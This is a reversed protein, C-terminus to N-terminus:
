FINKPLKISFVAGLENNRISITGKHKEIIQKCISLGLGTGEGEPKTTFFPEFIKHIIHEPVGGGTDSIEIIAENEIEKVEIKITGKYKMAQISNHILNTWVQQLENGFGMVKVSQPYNKKLNVGHKFLNHYLTLVNEITGIIDVEKMEGSIEMRSHSKLAFVIKSAREVAEKANSTNRFIASYNYAFELLKEGEQLKFIPVFHEDLAYIKIDILRDAIFDVDHIGHNELQTKLKKKLIREEKLSHNQFSTKQAIIHLFQYFLEQHETSLQYIISSQQLFNNQMTASLNDLSARIAGLPTNVEHAVGAVLKGLASMKEAQILEQQTQKLALLAQEIEDKQSKLELNKKEIENKQNVVETTRSKVIRELRIKEKRLRYTNWRVVAVVLSASILFYGIYAWWTQWWPPLITFSISAEESWVYNRGRVRVRFTYEGSPLNIYEAKNEKTFSSWKSDYGDLIYRYVLNYQDEIRLGSYHITIQNQHYPLVLNEPIFYPLIQNTNSWSIGKEIFLSKQNLIDERLLFSNDSPHWLTDISKPLATYLRWDTTKKMIDFQTIFIKPAASDPLIPNISVILENIGAWLKGKGEIKNSKSFILPSGPTNFDLKKLGHVLGWSILSFEDNQKRVFCTLGKDTGAWMNGVSDEAFQTVMNDALGEKTTFNTYKNDKFITVGEFGAIWIAGRSDEKITMINNSILGTSKSHQHIKGDKFVNIGGGQTGVWIVHKSDELMCWVLNSSLGENTTIHRFIGDKYINVGGGNCGVLITGNKQKILSTVMKSSIGQPINYQIFNQNHIIYIGNNSAMWLSDNQEEIFQYVSTAEFGQKKSYFSYNNGDFYWLGSRGFGIWLDGNEKEYISKISIDESKFEYPSYHVFLNHEFRSLGGEKTGILIADQQDEIMSIVTTNNLGNARSYSQFITDSLVFLTDSDTGIWIKGEHNEFISRISVDNFNQYSVLQNDKLKSIGKDTGIWLTSDKSEFLNLVTPHNLGQSTNYILFQGDKYQHLGNSTAIWIEGSKRKIISNITLNNLGSKENFVCISDNNIIYLGKGLTGVWIKNNNDEVISNIISSEFVGNREIQTFYGNEYYMLVGDVAGIWIRDHSDELLSYVNNNPLSFLKIFSGDIVHLGSTTGLWVRQYKDLMLSNINYGEIGHETHWYRIGHMDNDQKFPPLFSRIVPLEAKVISKKLPLKTPTAKTITPEGIIMSLPVVKTRRNVVNPIIKPSGIPTIKPPLLPKTSDREVLKGEIFEYKSQPLNKPFDIIKPQALVTKPSLFEKEELPFPIQEKQSCSLLLGIIIYFLISAFVKM